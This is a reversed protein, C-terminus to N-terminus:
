VATPRAVGAPRINHTMRFLNQPDYRQKIEILRALNAGYAAAVRSSEDATLFNVYVTGTALPTVADFLGRVWRICREDDARDRWRGHINLVFEADRAGYATASFPVRGVAGGIQGVFVETEPSPLSAVSTVLQEILEDHLATFNHSKWYNRAGPTLMPDFTQQWATFPVPGVHQGIPTGIARLPAIARDADELEGTWVLALALVPRGHWEEPLFPLPPALRMVAWCTLAESAVGMYSRYDRLVREADALPHVILGALVTPGLRHLQFEFSTVVGFNGGGGRIAWFLDPESDTSAHRMQGDATVMAASRLNDITLGFRRSIWGFGGGLTLGAIGTTSNIGLPVALGHAQTAADLDALTAGAEVVVRRAGANVDVAKMASLDIMVADDRISLGAINHGGGRISVLLKNEACFRVARQVDEATRCRVILAPRCDIMGNWIQRVQDFTPSDRRVLEGSFNASFSQIQSSSLTTSEGSLSRVQLESM